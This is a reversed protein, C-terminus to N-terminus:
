ALANLLTHLGLKPAHAKEFAGELLVNAIANPPPMSMGM